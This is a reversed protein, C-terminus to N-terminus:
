PKPPWENDGAHRALGPLRLARQKARPTYLRSEPDNLLQTLSDRIRVCQEPTFMLVWRNVCFEPHVRLSFLCMAKGQDPGPDSCCGPELALIEVPFTPTNPM